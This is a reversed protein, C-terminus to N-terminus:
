SIALHALRQPRKLGIRGPAEHRLLVLVVPEHKIQHMMWATGRHVHRLLAAHHAHPVRSNSSKPVSRVWRGGWRPSTPAHSDKTVLLPLPNARREIAPANIPRTGRTSLPINGDDVAIHFVGSIASVVGGGCCCAISKDRTDSDLTLVTTEQRM